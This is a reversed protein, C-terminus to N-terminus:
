LTSIAIEHKLTININDFNMYNIKCSISQKQTKGPHQLAKDKYQCGTERSTSYKPNNHSKLNKEHMQSPQCHKVSM